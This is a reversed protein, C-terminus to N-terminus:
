KAIGEQNRREQNETGSGRVRFKPTPRQANATQKKKTPFQSMHERWLLIFYSPFILFDPTTPPKRGGPEM